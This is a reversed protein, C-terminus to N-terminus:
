LPDASNKPAPVLGPERQTNNPVAHHIKYVHRNHTGCLIRLNEINAQGGRSVPRRHDIQLFSKSACVKGSLPDNYECHGNVLLQKRDNPRISRPLKQSADEHDRSRDSNKMFKRPSPRRISTKQAIIKEAFCVTVEAWNANPLEHSCLDKARQLIGIQEKTFTITLTVSGDAHNQQKHIVTPVIGLSEAAIVQTEASTASEVLKIIMRKQQVTVPKQHQKKSERCTHEIQALQSLNLTGAELKSAIEPIQRLMRAGAIRRAAAGESYGCAGRLFAHLSTYARDLYLKRADIEAIYELVRHSIKRESRVCDHFEAMLQENGMKSFM